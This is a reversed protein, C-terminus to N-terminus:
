EDHKMPGALKSLLTEYVHAAVAVDISALGVPSFSAPGKWAKLDNMLEERDLVKTYNKIGDRRGHETLKMGLRSYYLAIADVNRAEMAVLNTPVILGGVSLVHEIYDSLMDDIDLSLTVVDPAIEPADFVPRGSNTAMIVFQGNPM